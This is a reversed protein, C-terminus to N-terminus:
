CAAPLRELRPRRTIPSLKGGMAMNEGAWLPRLNTYHCLQRLSAERDVHLSVLPKEHDVHWVKGHNEWTMGPLFKAELYARLQEFTCGLYEFCRGEKVRGKLVHALRSRMIRSLKFVPDAAMKRKQRVNRVANVKARNADYYAVAQSIIKTRNAQYYDANQKKSCVKCRPRYGDPSAARLHFETRAKEEHCVSCKKM